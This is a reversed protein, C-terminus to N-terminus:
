IRFWPPFQIDPHFTPNGNSVRIDCDFESSNVTPTAMQCSLRSVSDKTFDSFFSCMRSFKLFHGLSSIQSIAFTYLLPLPLLGLAQTVWFWTPSMVPFFNSSFPGEKSSFGHLGGLTITACKESYKVPVELYSKSEEVDCMGLPVFLACSLSEMQEHGLCWKRKLDHVLNWFCSWSCFTM